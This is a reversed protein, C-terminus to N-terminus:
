NPVVRKQQERRAQFLRDYKRLVPSYPDERLAAEIKNLALTPNVRAYWMIYYNAPGERVGYALPFSQAAAEIEPLPDVSAAWLQVARAYHWEGVFCALGYSLGLGVFIGRWSHQWFGRPPLMSPSVSVASPSSRSSFLSKLNM